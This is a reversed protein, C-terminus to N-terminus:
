EMKNKETYKITHKKKKDKEKRYTNSSIQDL